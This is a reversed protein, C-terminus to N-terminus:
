PCMGKSFCVHNSLSSPSLAPAANLLMLPVLHVAAAEELVHSMCAIVSLSYTSPSLAQMLSLCACESLVYSLFCARFRHLSCSFAQMLPMGMSSMMAMRAQMLALTAASIGPPAKGSAILQQMNRLM